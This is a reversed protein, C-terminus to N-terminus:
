AVFSNPLASLYTTIGLPKRLVSTEGAAMTKLANLTIRSAALLLLYGMRDSMCITMAEIFLLLPRTARDATLTLRAKLVLGLRGETILLGMLGFSSLSESMAVIDPIATVTLEVLM